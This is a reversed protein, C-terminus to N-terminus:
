RITWNKASSLFFIIEVLQPNQRPFAQRDMGHWDVARSGSTAARARGYARAVLRQRCRSACTQLVGNVRDLLCRASMLCVDLQSKRSVYLWSTSGAKITYPVVACHLSPVQQGIYVTIHRNGCHSSQMQFHRTCQHHDTLKTQRIKILRGQIWHTRYLLATPSKPTRDSYTTPIRDLPWTVHTSHSAGTAVAPLSKITVAAHRGDVITWWTSETKPRLSTM